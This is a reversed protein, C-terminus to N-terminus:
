SMWANKTMRRSRQGRTTTSGAPTSTSSDNGNTGCSDVTRQKRRMVFPSTADVDELVFIVDKFGPSTPTSGDSNYSSNYFVQMLDQNTSVRSFPVNVIHRNTHHALAKILSTKGTGPEGHLLLGLKYPFGEIAYKGQRKQFAGVTKLLNHKQQSFLTKFTKEDGLRNSKYVPSRQGSLHDQGSARELDFFYRYNVNLREVRETYWRFAEDIFADVSEKGNSELIIM